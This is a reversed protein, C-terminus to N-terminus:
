SAPASRALAMWAAGRLWVGDTRARASLAARLAATLREFSRADLLADLARGETEFFFELADDVDDGVWLEADFPEIRVEAFRAAALAREVAARDALAHMRSAEVSANLRAAVESGCAQAVVERPLARWENDSENRWVAFALRGGPVLTTALQACLREPEAASAIALRSVACHFTRAPLVADEPDDTAFSTWALRQERARSSAVHIAHADPDVGAAAGRSGVRHAAELTIGGAGCGVDLVREGPMPRALDLVRHGVPGLMREFRRWERAAATSSKTTRGDLLQPLTAMVM